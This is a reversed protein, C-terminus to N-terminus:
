KLHIRGFKEWDSMDSLIVKDGEKLGALVQITNVSTRGFKVSTREAETGDKIIKFLPV